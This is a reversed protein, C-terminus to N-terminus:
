KVPFNFYTKPYPENNLTFHWWEQPYSRFGNETMLNRLLARNAKQKKNLDSYFIAASPDMCDFRTGTDISDDNLYHNTKDFCRTIASNVVPYKTGIKVLTLDITSGRTHGSGKAIYGKTFLDKKDERPYFSTKMRTDDPDLSWQYFAEVATQPRYCDYVKLTYGLKNAAVQVKALHEAAERTLICRGSQYGPIPRGIFNYSTAYRIDQIISPEIDRLYVFGKPLGWVTLSLAYLFLTLLMRQM